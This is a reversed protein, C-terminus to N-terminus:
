IAVSSLTAAQSGIFMVKDASGCNPCAQRGILGKTDSSFTDRNIKVPFRAPDNTLPCPGDEMRVVLSKACLYWQKFAFEPQTPAAKLKPQGDLSAAFDFMTQDDWQMPESDGVTQGGVSRQPSLIVINPSRSGKYGFWSRYILTADDELRFGS